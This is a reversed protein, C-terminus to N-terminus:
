FWLFLDIGQTGASNLFPLPISSLLLDPTIKKNQNNQKEFTNIIDDLVDLVWMAPESELDDVIKRGRRLKSKIVDLTQDM